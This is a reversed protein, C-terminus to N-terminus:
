LTPDPLVESETQLKQFYRKRAEYDLFDVCTASTCEVQGTKRTCNKASCTHPNPAMSPFNASNSVFTQLLISLILTLMLSNRNKTEVRKEGPSQMGGHGVLKVSTKSAMM